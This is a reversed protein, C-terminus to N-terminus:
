DKYYVEELFLGKAPATKVRETRKKSELIEELDGRTLKEEGVRILAGTLSRIMKYLFSSGEFYIRIKAHEQIMEIKQITKVPNIRGKQVGESAASYATFDHKGLFVSSAEQMLDFDLITKREGTSFYYRSDEPAAFGRFIQYVYRKGIASFRAHFDVPVEFFSHIQISDPLLTMLAMKMAKEGYSWDADFHFVQGRAHAGSDTRGSGFIDIKRKLIKSLAAEIKDQVGRFTPQSQWGYFDTGDYSCTCKWRKMIRHFHSTKGRLVLTRKAIGM